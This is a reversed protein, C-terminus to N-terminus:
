PFAHETRHSKPNRTKTHRSQKNTQKQDDTSEYKPIRIFSHSISYYTYAFTNFHQRKWYDVYFIKGIVYRRQPNSTDSCFEGMKVKETDQSNPAFIRENTDPTMWTRPDLPAGASDDKPYSHHIFLISIRVRYAPTNGHNTIPIYAYEVDLNPVLIPCEQFVFPRNENIYNQQALVNSQRTLSLSSDALAFSTLEKKHQAIDDISDKIHRYNMERLTLKNSEIAASAQDSAYRATKMAFIAVIATIALMVWEVISGWDHGEKKVIVNIPPDPRVIHDTNDKKHNTTSEPKPKEEGKSVSKNM